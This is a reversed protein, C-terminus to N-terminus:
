SASWYREGLGTPSIRGAHALMEDINEQDTQSGYCCMGAIKATALEGFEVTCVPRLGRTRMSDEVTSLPHHAAYPIDEYFVADPAIERVADHVIRHDVHNGVAGPAVVVEPRLRRVLTRIRDAVEDAVPDAAADADLETDDDYGRLSADRLDWSLTRIGRDSGYRRDEEARASSVADPGQARLERPLAWTSRGFVTVLTAGCDRLHREVLGGCSYAIDDPHPAVLLVRRGTPGFPFTM